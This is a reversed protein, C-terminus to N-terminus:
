RENMSTGFLSLGLGVPEPARAGPQRAQHPQTPAVAGARKSSHKARIIRGPKAATFGHTSSPNQYKSKEKSSLTSEYADPPVWQGKSIASEVVSGNSQQPALQAPALPPFGVGKGVGRGSGGRTDIVPVTGRSDRAGGRAKTVGQGIGRGRGSFRSDVGDGVRLAGGNGSLQGSVSLGGGSGSLRPPAESGSDGTPARTHAYTLVRSGTYALTHGV